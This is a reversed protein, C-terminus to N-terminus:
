EREQVKLYAAFDRESLEHALLSVQRGLRIIIEALPLSIDQSNTVGELRLLFGPNWGIIEAQMVMGLESAMEYWDENTM